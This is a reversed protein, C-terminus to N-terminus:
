ASEHRGASHLQDLRLHLLYLLLVLALGIRLGPLRHGLLRHTEVLARTGVRERRAKGIRSCDGIKKASKRTSLLRVAIALPWFTGIPGSSLDRARCAFVDV